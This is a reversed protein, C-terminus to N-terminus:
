SEPLSIQDYIVKILPQNCAEGTAKGQDIVRGYNAAMAIRAKASLLHGVVSSSPRTSNAGM